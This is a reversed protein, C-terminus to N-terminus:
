GATTFAAHTQDGCPLAMCGMFLCDSSRQLHKAKTPLFALVGGASCPLGLLWLNSHHFLQLKDANERMGAAM